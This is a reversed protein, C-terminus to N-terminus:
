HWSGLDGKGSVLASLGVMDHRSFFVHNDVHDALGLTDFLKCLTQVNLITYAVMNVATPREAEVEPPNAEFHSKLTSTIDQFQTLILRIDSRNPFCVCRRGNAKSITGPRLGYSFTSTPVSRAFCVGSPLDAHSLLRAGNPFTFLGEM